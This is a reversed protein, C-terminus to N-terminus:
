WTMDIGVMVTKWPPLGTLLMMPALGLPAIRESRASKMQTVALLDGRPVSTQTRAGNTHPRPGGYRVAARRPGCDVWDSGSIGQANLAVIGLMVGIVTAIKIVDIIIETIM